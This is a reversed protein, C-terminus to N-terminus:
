RLAGRGSGMVLIVDTDWVKEEGTCVDSAPRTLTLPEQYESHVDRVELSSRNYTVHWNTQYGALKAAQEADAVGRWGLALDMKRRWKPLLLKKKVALPQKGHMVDVPESIRRSASINGFSDLTGQWVQPSGDNFIKTLTVPRQGTSALGTGASGSAISWRYGEQDIWDGEIKAVLEGIAQAMGVDDRHEITREEARYLPPKENGSRKVLKTGLTIAFPEQGGSGDNYVITQFTSAEPDWQLRIFEGPNIGEIVHTTPAKKPDPPLVIPKWLMNYIGARGLIAYAREGDPMKKVDNDEIGLVSDAVMLALHEPIADAFASSGSLLVLLQLIASLIGKWLSSM